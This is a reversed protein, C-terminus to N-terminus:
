VDVDLPIASYLVSHVNIQGNSLQDMLACMQKYQQMIM